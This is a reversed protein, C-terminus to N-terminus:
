ISKSNQINWVLMDGIDAGAPREAEPLDWIRWWECMSGGKNAWDEIADLDNSITAESVGFLNSFYFLKRPERNRLLELKLLNRRRDKDTVVLERQSSIESLLLKKDEEDGEIVTGEGKKRILKLNYEELVESVYDVERLITRKSVGLAEAIDKDTLPRKVGLLHLIIQKSRPTIEM